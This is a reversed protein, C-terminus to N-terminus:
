CPLPVCFEQHRMSKHQGLREKYLRTTEEMRGNPERFLRATSRCATESCTRSSTWGSRFSFLHWVNKSCKGCPARLTVLSCTMWLNCCGCNKVAAISAFCAFAFCVFCAFAFCVDHPSQAFTSEKASVCTRHSLM